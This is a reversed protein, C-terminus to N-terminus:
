IIPASPLITSLLDDLSTADQREDGNILQAYVQEQETFQVDLQIEEVVMGNAILIDYHERLAMEAKFAAEEAIEELGLLYEGEYEELEEMKQELQLQEEETADAALELEFQHRLKRLAVILGEYGTGGAVEGWSLQVWYETFWKPPSDPAVVVYHKIGLNSM